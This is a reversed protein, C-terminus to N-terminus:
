VLCDIHLGTKSVFVTGNYEDHQKAIYAERVVPENNHDYVTVNCTGYLTKQIANQPAFSTSKRKVIDGFFSATECKHCLMM